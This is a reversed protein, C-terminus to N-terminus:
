HQAFDKGLLVKDLLEQSLFGSRRLYAYSAFNAPRQRSAFAVNRCLRLESETCPGKSSHLCDVSRAAAASCQLPCSM